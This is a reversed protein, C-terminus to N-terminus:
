LLFFLVFKFYNEIQKLLFENETIKLILPLFFIKKERRIEEENEIRMISAAILRINDNIEKEWMRSAILFHNKKWIKRREEWFIRFWKLKGNKRAWIKKKKLLDSLSSSWTHIHYYKQLHYKRESLEALTISMTGSFETVM